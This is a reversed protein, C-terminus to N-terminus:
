RWEGQLTFAAWFRPERWRNDKWMSLQANRLAAAPSLNDELLGKYFRSMLTATARDDTQWLSAVVRTAGAYMFSRTLGILGEGKIDKGLATKCASIVVLDANLSLNYIDYLRLFGDQAQGKENVLSLVIGSLEIHEDDILGHTAFHVIRYHRLEPGIATGRNAAFDLAEFSKDKSALRVISEAEQRSFRLRPFTNLGTKQESRNIEIGQSGQNSESLGRKALAVRVDGSDFVPDAFVAVTKPRDERGRADRRLVGLVSASPLTIVEHSVVLPTISDPTTAQGRIQKKTSSTNARPSTNGPKPQPLPEPLASFPIYQLLGESVILLRKSRIESAIPDLLMRGLAAVAKTYEADALAGDPIVHHSATILDYVRRAAAEIEARRPLELSSISTPTVAWVFSRDQGLAYELLVTDKDLLESQIQKLSLPVPQTLAAYRPSTQRIQAQVQEYEIVLANIKKAAASGEDETHKGSLLRMQSNAMDAISQRLFREREILSPDIGQKIQANAEHLLELLSRARGKESAQLAAADFGETPRQKHLQMLLDIHFEYYQRVSALFSARLQHESKVNIRLSEVAVLAGEIHERAEM